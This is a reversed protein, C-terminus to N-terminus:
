TAEGNNLEKTVDGTIDASRTSINWKGAVATTTISHKEMKWFFIGIFISVALVAIFSVVDLWHPYSNDLSTLIDNLQFISSATRLLIAIATCVFLAIFLASFIQSFIANVKTPSYITALKPTAKNNKSNGNNHDSAFVTKYLPGLVDDELLEVQAEWNAQWFKSGKNAHSWGSSFLAGLGALVLLMLQYLFTLSANGDNKFSATAVVGYATLTSAVIAWFYTSRKWYLEIEFKRIDLAANYALRLRSDSDPAKSKGISALYKQYNESREPQASSILTKRKFPIARRMSKQTM